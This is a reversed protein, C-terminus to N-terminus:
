RALLAVSSAFKLPNESDSPNVFELSFSVIRPINEEVLSPDWNDHEDGQADYYTFDVSVLNECLPLGGGGEEAAVETQPRDSRYLVLGEGDEDKGVYYSIEATGGPLDQEGLVLHSRSLFRLTDASNGEIESDEGEFELAEDESTAPGAAKNEHVFASGLDELIREFAIRAMQYIEAQSETERVIRLVGTYSGFVTSLVIVLIFIAILIELLTFGKQNM